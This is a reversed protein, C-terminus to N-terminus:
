VSFEICVSNNNKYVKNQKQQNYQIAKHRPSILCPHLKTSFSHQKYGGMRIVFAQKKSRNNIMSAFLSRGEPKKTQGVTFKHVVYM